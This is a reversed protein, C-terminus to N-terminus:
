ILKIYKFYNFSNKHISIKLTQILSELFVACVENIELGIESSRTSRLHVRTSKAIM